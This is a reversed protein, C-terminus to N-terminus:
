AIAELVYFEFLEEHEERAAISTILRLRLLSALYPLELVVPTHGFVLLTGGPALLDRLARLLAEATDSHVVEVNLFRVILADCSAAPCAPSAADATHLALNTARVKSRAWDIMSASRDSGICPSESFACAVHDIFAGSSCAPDYILGGPKLRKKLVNVAHARFHAENADLKQAFAEEGAWATDPMIYERWQPDLQPFPFSVRASADVTARAFVNGCEAMSASLYYFVVGKDTFRMGQWRGLLMWPRLLSSINWSGGKRSLFKRGVWDVGDVRLIFWQQLCEPWPEVFRELTGDPAEHAAYRIALKIERAYIAEPHM